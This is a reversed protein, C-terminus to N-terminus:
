RINRPGSPKGIESARAFTSCCYFILLLTETEFQDQSYRGSSIMPREEQGDQEHVGEYIMWHLRKICDYNWNEFGKGKKYQEM